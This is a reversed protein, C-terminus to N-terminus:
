NSRTGKIYAEKVLSLIYEVSKVSNNNAMIKYKIENLDADANVFGIIPIGAKKVEETAMREKKTDLIFVADPKKQLEVIGGFKEELKELERELEAKELKTLREWTGSKKDQRLTKLHSARKKIYPFNSITGGFWRGAVYPLSLEDATSKILDLSEKRGGVFLIISGQKGLQIIYELAKEMEVSVKDIDFVNDSSNKDIYERSTPHRFTKPLTYHLGLSYLNEKDMTKMHSTYVVM